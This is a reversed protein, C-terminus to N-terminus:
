EGLRMTKLCQFDISDKFQNYFNLNLIKNSVLIQDSTNIKALIEFVIQDRDTKSPHKDILKVSFNLRLSQGINPTTNGHQDYPLDDGEAIIRKIISIPKDLAIYSEQLCHQSTPSLCNESKKDYSAFFSM